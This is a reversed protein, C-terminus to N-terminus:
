SIVSMVRRCARGESVSSLEMSDRLSDKMEWLSDKLWSQAEGIM